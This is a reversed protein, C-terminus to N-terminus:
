DTKKNTSLSNKNRYDCRISYLLRRKFVTAGSGNQAMSLKFFVIMKVLILVTAWRWPISAWTSGSSIIRWSHAPGGLPIGGYEFVKELSITHWSNVYNVYTKPLFLIMLYINVVAGILAFLQFMARWVKLDREVGPYPRQHMHMMKKADLPVEFLNNLWCLFFSLPFVPGFCALIRNEYKVYNFNM